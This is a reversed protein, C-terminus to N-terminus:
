KFANRIAKLVYIFDYTSRVEGMAAMHALIKLEQDTIKHSERLRANSIFKDWASRRINPAPESVIEAAEPNALIFLERWNLGLVRAMAILVKHSPLRKASEVHGVYATSVEIRRALEQQTLDMARRRDRITKAFNRTEPRLM